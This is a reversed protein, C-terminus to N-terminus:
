LKLNLIRYFEVGSFGKNNTFDSLLEDIDIVIKNVLFNGCEFTIWVSDLNSGKM